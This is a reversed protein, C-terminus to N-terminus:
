THTHLAVSMDQGGGGEGCVGVRVQLQAWHQVTEGLLSQQLANLRNEQESAGSRFRAPPPAAAASSIIRINHNYGFAHKHFQIRSSGSGSGSSSGSSTAASRGGRGGCHFRTRHSERTCFINQFEVNRDNLPVSRWIAECDASGVFAHRRM